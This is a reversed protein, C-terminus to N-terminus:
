LSDDYDGEIRNNIVKKELIDYDAPVGKIYWFQVQPSGEEEQSKDWGLQLESKQWANDTKYNILMSRPQGQQGAKFGIAFHRSVRTCFIDSMSVKIETTVM